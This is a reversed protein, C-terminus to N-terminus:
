EIGPAEASEHGRCAVVPLPPYRGFSPDDDARACRYFVAGRTTAQERRFRCNACIGITQRLVATSIEQDNDM